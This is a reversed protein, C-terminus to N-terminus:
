AYTDSSKPSSTEKDDSNMHEETTLVEQTTATSMPITEQQIPMNTEVDQGTDDLDQTTPTRPLINPPDKLARKEQLKEMKLVMATVLEDMDPGETEATSISSLHIVSQDQLTAAPTTNLPKEMLPEDTPKTLPTSPPPKRQGPAV